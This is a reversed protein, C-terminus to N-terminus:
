VRSRAWSTLARTSWSLAEPRASRVQDRPRLTSRAPATILAEDGDADPESGSAITVTPPWTRSSAASQALWQVVTLHGHSSLQIVLHSSSRQYEELTAGGVDVQM